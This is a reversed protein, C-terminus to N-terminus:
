AQGGKTLKLFIEELSAEKRNLGLLKCGSAAALDFLEESRDTTDKSTLELVTRGGEEHQQTLRFVPPLKGTFAPVDGKLELTYVAEGAAMAALDQPSGEGVLRGDSIILIRDCTKSAEDLIHTSFLIAKTQGLKRVLKRIELIQTPDLGSTPEDLILVPPDHILAQALGVRQRFGRSLESIDKFAMSQLSCAEVMEDIKASINKSPIGRVEAIFRLFGTVSMEEYLPTSEPLYGLMRRVEVPQEWIDKGNVRATGSQPMILGTVVRMTTTKGAGNPGLFGVVEGPMVTFSVDNVALTAGFRKTLHEVEIM